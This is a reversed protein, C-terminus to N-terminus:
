QVQQKSNDDNDEDNYKVTCYTNVPLLCDGDGGDKIQLCAEEDGDKIQLCVADYEDKILSCSDDDGHKMQLRDDNHTYYHTSTYSGHDHEISTRQDFYLDSTPRDCHLDSTPQDCHLDNTTKQTSDINCHMVSDGKNEM